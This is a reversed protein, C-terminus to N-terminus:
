LIEDAEKQLEYGHQFSVGIFYICIGGIVAAGIFHDTGKWEVGKIIQCAALSLYKLCKIVPYGIVFCLAIWKINIFSDKVFPTGHKRVGKYVKECKILIFLFLVHEFVRNWYGVEFVLKTHEKVKTLFYVGTYEQEFIPPLFFSGYNKGIDSQFVSTKELLTWIGAMVEIVCVILLLWRMIIILDGVNEFQKKVKNENKREFM